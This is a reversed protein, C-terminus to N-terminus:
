ELRGKNKQWWEQWKKSDNGFDQKTIEKLISLELMIQLQTIDAASGKTSKLSEQKSELSQILFPVARSGSKKIKEAIDGRPRLELTGSNNRSEVLQDILSNTDIKEEESKVTESKVAKPPTEKIRCNGEKSICDPTIKISSNMYTPTDCDMSNGLPTFHMEIPTIGYQLNIGELSREKPNLPWVFLLDGVKEKVTSAKEEETSPVVKRKDTLYFGDVILYGPKGSTKLSTVIKGEKNIDDIERNIKEVLSKGGVKEIAKLLEPALVIKEKLTFESRGIEGTPNDTSVTAEGGLVIQSSYFAYISLVLVMILVQRYIRKRM